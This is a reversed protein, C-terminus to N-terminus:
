RTYVYYGEKVIADAASPIIRATSTNQQIRDLQLQVPRGETKCLQGDAAGAVGSNEVVLFRSNETAGDQRGVNLTVRAGERRLVAGTILPFGQEVKLVLGAVADDLGNDADPSYVDSAFIVEGNGTEVAKLYVTIGKAENFIKGMLLMEAPLIKSIRLAAAPDALDSVSLGQERLVFDWGENRELLKFRVPERTLETEMTRKVRTSVLGAEAPTLPPVGVSLRFGDDLYEPKARVVTLAQATRNGARDLAVIEFENTGLDLPLRRSFYTRVTGEEAPTLLNEGNITVCALGGGDAATGDVFFDEVFVRTLPQCGRLSLAPRLRDASGAPATQMTLRLVGARESARCARAWQEMQGVVTRGAAFGLGCAVTDGVAPRWRVAQSGPAPTLAADNLFVELRNGARDTAVLRAGAAPVRLSVPVDRLVGRPADDFVDTEGMRVAAVGYDDRCVGEVLWGQGEPTVRRVTFRPPQWDAIRLASVAVRQGALDEAVVALTNSGPRLAVRRSFTQAPAALEIFEPTGCVSLRRIRGEGSATGSILLSRDRTYAVTDASDLRVHPAPIARGAMQKQLALNLYHKARGSPEHRLSTELYQVAQTYDQREYLCVGLERNPFYGEVFHLGYTRARWMDRANGFRAGSRVGLSRQFDATAEEVRGAKLFFAGRAYYNWWNHHYLEGGETEPAPAVCGLITLLVGALLVGAGCSWAGRAARAGQRLSMQPLRLRM